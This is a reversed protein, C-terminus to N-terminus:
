KVLRQGIKNLGQKIDPTSNWCIYSGTFRISGSARRKAVFGAGANKDILHHWHSIQISKEATLARFETAGLKRGVLRFVVSGAPCGRFSSVSGLFM